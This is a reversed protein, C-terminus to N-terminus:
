RRCTKNTKIFNCSVDGLVSTVEGQTLHKFATEPDDRAFAKELMVPALKALSLSAQSPSLVIIDGAYLREESQGDGFDTDLYVSSM